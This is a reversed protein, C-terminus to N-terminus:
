FCVREEIENVRERTIGVYKMTVDPNRHGLKEAILLLDVGEQHAALGWTKRLSHTGYRGTLGVDRCWGQILQWARVRTLPKASNRGTFLFNDYELKRGRFYRELAEICPQPLKIRVEKGSKHTRVYLYEKFEGKGNVVDKVKLSLLDGVRLAANVGLTFLLYDRPKRKLMAKIAMVKTRPKIPEVTNM